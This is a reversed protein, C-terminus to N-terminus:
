NEERRGGRAGRERDRDSARERPESARPGARRAAPDRAPPGSAAPAAPVPAPRAPATAPAPAPAPAPATAPAPAPAPATAPARTPAPARERAPVPVPAPAPAPAPGSERAPTQPRAPAPASAPAPAPAARGSQPGDARPAAGENRRGREERNGREQARGSAPVSAPPAPRAAPLVSPASAAPVAPQAPAAPSSAPARVAASEPTRAPASGADAPLPASAGRRARAAGSAAASAPQAPVDVPKAAEVVKVTAAGSAPAAPKLAAVAAADLPKGPQAELARRRSEFPAPPPPPAAQAVVGRGQLAAPPGSSATAAAPGIVSARQPAVAAAAAVPGRSLAERNVQVTERGVPRSQALAAALVAIVAGSVQQNAYRTPPASRQDFYSGAQRADIATNSTNIGRFYEQSVAYPPRYVERPGLPFWAVTQDRAGATGGVFGVVAPAYVPRANVPGPVWAWSQDLRAWRGYHSPAFGWAADDVWTWGWPEIWSWHGERYPSWGAPVRSPVWVNGLGPANRWNGNADLDEYGILEASVYRRSPSAAYRRDREDAWRDLDDLRGAAFVDYDRLSTGYFRYGRREALRFARGEGFAEARGSRVLVSTSDDNANVEVRYSGPARIAYALNPTAVEFVQGRGLQRVRIYLVGQNLQLQTTRDDLNLLAMSTSGGVRVVAQGTQLEARAGRELWLKDGTVLPRNPVARGWDREGGPSFSVAGGVHALRAVRAPPDARAVGAALVCALSILWLALHRLPSARHM